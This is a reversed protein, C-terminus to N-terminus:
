RNADDWAAIAHNIKSQMCDVKDEVQCGCSSELIEDKCSSVITNAM